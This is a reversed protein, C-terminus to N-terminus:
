GSHECSILFELGNLRFLTRLRRSLGVLVLDGGGDRIAKRMLLLLGLFRADVGITNTFDVIVRKRAAIADRFAPRVREVYRAVALGSLSFTLTDVDHVQEFTLEPCASVYRVKLWVMRFAFPVVRTGLLHILASCDKWYRRWLHPEEKIRWLWELGVSRIVRPARKIRRAQFNIAAGLHTRIPVSLHHRNCWLWTQGKKAGLSVVLFDAQSSNIKDLIEDGSMEDIAGYGPFFSGVCYIGSREANIAQRAEEAVGEVGGFLFVKIPDSSVRRKKLAEFIDAGAVRKRLPVGILKAIWIVPMGDAPCLDSQIVTERFHPDTQAAVLFNVNPTSLIFPRREAIAEEIVCLVSSMDIVDIPM